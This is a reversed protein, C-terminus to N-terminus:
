GAATTTQLAGDRTVQKKSRNDSSQLISQLLLLLQALAEALCIRALRVMSVSVSGGSICHQEQYLATPCLPWIFRHRRFEASKAAGETLEPLYNDGFERNDRCVSTNSARDQKQVM